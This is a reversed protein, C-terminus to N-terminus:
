HSIGGITTLYSEYLAITGNTNLFVVRRPKQTDPTRRSTKSGVVRWISFIFLLLWHFSLVSRYSCNWTNKQKRQNNTNDFHVMADWPNIVVRGCLATCSDISIWSPPSIIGQESVAHM